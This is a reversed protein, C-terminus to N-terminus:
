AAKGEREALRAAHARVGHLVTTHDRGGLLTGIQPMSYRGLKYIEAMAEQRPHAICRARSPGKFDDLTLGYKAAVATAVSRMTVAVPPIVTVEPLDGQWLVQIM